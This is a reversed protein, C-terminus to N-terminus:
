ETVGLMDAGCLYRAIENSLMVLRAALIATNPGGESKIRLQLSFADLTIPNENEDYEVYDFPSFSLKEELELLDLIVAQMAMQMTNKGSEKEYYEDMSVFFRLIKDTVIRNESTEELMGAAGMASVVHLISMTNLYGFEEVIREVADEIRDNVADIGLEELFFNYADFRVVPMGVWYSETDYGADALVAEVHQIADSIGQMLKDM